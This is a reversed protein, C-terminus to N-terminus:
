KKFALFVVLEGTGAEQNNIMPSFLLWGDKSVIIDELPDGYSNVILGIV